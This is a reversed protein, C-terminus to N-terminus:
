TKIRQWFFIPDDAASGGVAYELTVGGHSTHKDQPAQDSLRRSLQLHHGVSLSKRIECSNASPAMAIWGNDLNPIATYSITTIKESRM